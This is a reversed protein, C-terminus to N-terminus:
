DLRGNQSKYCIEVIESMTLGTRQQIKSLLLLHNQDLQIQYSKTPTTKKYRKIMLTDIDLESLKLVDSLKGLIRKIDTTPRTIQIDNPLYITTRKKIPIDYPHISPIMIDKRSLILYPRVITLFRLISRQDYLVLRRQQDLSFQLNFHEFLIQALFLNEEVSFSETSLIIKAPKGKKTRKLHGDDQYWWALCLPSMMRQVFQQPLVKKNEQYWIKKLNEFLPNTKSQVYYSETYGAKIREDTIRRYKPPNLPLIPALQQYCHLCWERDSRSHSFRLRSKRKEQITINGDGLLKGTVQEITSRPYHALFGENIEM